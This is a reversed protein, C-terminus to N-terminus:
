TTGDAEAAPLEAPASGVVAEGGVPVVVVPEVEGLELLLLSDPTVEARAADDDDVVLEPHDKCGPLLIHLEVAGKKILTAGNIMAKMIQIHRFAVLNNKCQLITSCYKRTVYGGPRPEKSGKRRKKKPNPSDHCQM